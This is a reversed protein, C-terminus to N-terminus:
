FHKLNIRKIASYNEMTNFFVYKDMYRNIPMQATQLIKATVFQAETFMLTCINSHYSTKLEIPIIGPLPIAPDFPVELKLKKLLRWLVLKMNNICNKLGGATFFHGKKVYGQRHKNNTSKMIISIREPTFHFRLMAEPQLDQIVVSTSCTEM